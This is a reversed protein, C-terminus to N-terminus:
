RRNVRVAGGPSGRGAGSVEPGTSSRPCSEDSKLTESKRESM